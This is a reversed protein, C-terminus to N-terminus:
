RRLNRDSFTRLLRKALHLWRCTECDCKQVHQYDPHGDIYNVAGRLAEILDALPVDTLSNTRHRDLWRCGAGFPCNQCEPVLENFRGSYECQSFDIDREILWRPYELVHVLHGTITRTNSGTQTTM